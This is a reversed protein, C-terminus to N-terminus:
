NEELAIFLALEEKTIWKTITKPNSALREIAKEVLEAMNLEKDSIIRSHRLIRHRKARDIHIARVNDLLTKTNM